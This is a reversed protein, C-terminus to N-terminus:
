HLDATFRSSSSHITNVNFEQCILSNEYCPGTNWLLLERYWLQIFAPRSFTTRGYYRLLDLLALLHKTGFEMLIRASCQKPQCNYILESVHKRRPYTGWFLAFLALSSGSGFSIPIRVTTSDMSREVVTCSIITRFRALHTVLCEENSAWAMPQPFLGCLIMGEHASDVETTPTPM